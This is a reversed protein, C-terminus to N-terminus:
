MVNAATLTAEHLFPSTVTRLSVRGQCMVYPENLPVSGFMDAIAVFEIPADKLTRSTNPM